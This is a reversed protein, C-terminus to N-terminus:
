GVKGPKSSRYGMCFYAKEGVRGHEPGRARPWDGLELFELTGEHVSNSAAGRELVAPESKVVRCLPLVRM